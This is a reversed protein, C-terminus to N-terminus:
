VIEKLISEKTRMTDKDSDNGTKHNEVPSTVRDGALADINKDDSTDKTENSDKLEDLKALELAHDAISDM